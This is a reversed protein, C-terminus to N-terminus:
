QPSRSSPVHLMRPGGLEELQISHQTIADGATRLTQVVDIESSTKLKVVQQIDEDDALWNVGEQKRNNLDKLFEVLEQLRLVRMWRAYQFLTKGSITSLFISRWMQAYAKLRPAGGADERGTDMVIPANYGIRVMFNAM